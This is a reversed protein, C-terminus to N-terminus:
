SSGGIILLSHEGDADPTIIVTEIIDDPAFPANNVFKADEGDVVFRITEAVDGRKQLIIFKKVTTHFLIAPAIGAETFTAVAILGTFGWLLVSEVFNLEDAPADPNTVVGYWPQESPTANDDVDTTDDWFPTEIECEEGCASAYYHDIMVQMRDVTEDVTLTGFKEWNYRMTLETLAGSVLALWESGAPILLPRCDDGEPIADPTLWPM